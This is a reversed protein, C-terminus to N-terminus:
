PNALIFASLAEDEPQYAPLRIIFAAQENALYYYIGGDREARLLPHSMLTKDTSEFVLGSGRILPAASAPLVGSVATDGSVAELRRVRYGHYSDDRVSGTDLSRPLFLTLGMAAALAAPNTSILDEKAELPSDQGAVVWQDSRKTEEDEQLLAYLYFSVMLLLAMVLAAIRRIM